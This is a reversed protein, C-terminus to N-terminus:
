PVRELDEAVEPPMQELCDDDVHVLVGGIFTAVVRAAALGAPDDIPDRDLVTVDGRELAVRGGSFLALAAAPGVAEAGGITGYEDRREVAAAIAGLPTAAAVPADTGGRVEIGAELLSAVRYLWGREEVSLERRYKPGREPLFGPNTVVTVPLGALARVHEPLSLALHEIRHKGAPPPREALCEIAVDAEVLGLVHLAVPWGLDAAAAIREGLEERTTEELVYSKAHGIAVGDLDSGFPLGAALFGHLEEGGALLEARQRLHGARTLEAFREAGAVSNTVTADTIATVGAAALEASVAGVAAAFAQPPAPPVVSLAAEADLLLGDVPVEAGILERAASNVVSIHGTRHHLVLPHRDTAWDLEAATPHRREALFAEDYGWARIWEGPPVGEAAAALVAVLEDLDGAAGPGVDVSLRTAATAFLHMHHDVLGPVAVAGAAPRWLPAAEGDDPAAWGRGIRCGPEVTALGRWGRLRCDLRLRTQTRPDTATTIV